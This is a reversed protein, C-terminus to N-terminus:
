IEVGEPLWGYQDYFGQPDGNPGKVHEIMRVPTAEMNRRRGEKVMKADWDKQFDVQKGRIIYDAKMKQFEAQHKALRSTAELWAVLEEKGATKPNPVGDRVLQIDKDSAPGPPLSGVAEHMLIGNAQTRLYQPDDRKGMKELLWEETSAYLGAKWEDSEGIQQALSQSKRAAAMSTAAESTLESWDKLVGASPVYGDGSAKTVKPNVRIINGDKDTLMSGESLKYLEDKEAKTAFFTEASISGNQLGAIVKPDGERKALAIAQKQQQENQKRLLEEQITANGADLLSNNKANIAGARERLRAAEEHKGLADLKQAAMEMTQPDNSTFAQQSTEQADQEIQMEKAQPSMFDTGEQGLAAGMMNGAGQSATNLLGQGMEGGLPNAQVASNIQNFMGAINGAM